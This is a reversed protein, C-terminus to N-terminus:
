WQQRDGNPHVQSQLIQIGPRLIRERVDPILVSVLLYVAVGLGIEALLVVINTVPVVHRTLALVGGMIGSSLVYWGTLRYPVDISVYRSLYMAHLATNVLGTIATAIAAGVVGIWLILIPNLLLNLGMAIVTAKAALNPRDIARVSVEIIDNVSQVLKEFMLVVLVTAVFTYESGFVFRLIDAAYLGTGVTAPISIFIVIGIAQSITSKINQTASEADWQSVQPFISLSISKSLLLVLLTIQWAVEYASVHRQSLLFGIIAIDVWQYFRGGVSTVTDYKSYALLSKVHTLSPRGVSVDTKFYALALGASSGILVGIAPGQPGYGMRVLIAGSAIWLLRIVFRITATEPVRFQGRLAYIYFFAFERLVIGIALLHALRAGFYQNIPGRLVLIGIAVVSLTLLKIAFASSFTKRLHSGESLRKELAGRIGLNAPISVLGLVALFLFFSGMQDPTLRRAFYAIGLFYVIANGSKSLFLKFTSRRLNM